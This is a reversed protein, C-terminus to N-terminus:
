QKVLDIKADEAEVLDTVLADSGVAGFQVDTALVENCVYQKNSLIADQIVENTDLTLLIKDTVEM